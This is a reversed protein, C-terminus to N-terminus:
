IANQITVRAGDREEQIFDPGSASMFQLDAPRHGTLQATPLM